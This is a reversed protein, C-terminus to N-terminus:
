GTGLRRCALPAPSAPFTLTYLVPLERFYKQRPPGFKPNVNENSDLVTKADERRQVSASMAMGLCAAAVVLRSSHM